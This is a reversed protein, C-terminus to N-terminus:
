LDKTSLRDVFQDWLNILENLDDMVQKQILFGMILVDYILVFSNLDDINKATIVKERYRILNDKLKSDSYSQSMIALLVASIKDLEENGIIIKRGIEKLMTSSVPKENLLFDEFFLATIENFVHNILDDFDDFQHYFSGKSVGAKKLIKNLSVKNFGHVYIMDIAIEIIYAKTEKSKQYM